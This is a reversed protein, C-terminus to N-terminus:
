RRILDAQSSYLRADDISVVGGPLTLWKSKNLADDKVVLV